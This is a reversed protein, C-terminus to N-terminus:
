AGAALSRRVAEAVEDLPGTRLVFANAGITKAMLEDSRQISGSTTLVLPISQLDSDARVAQCLRFGDMEPMLVDSVIVEPRSEKAVKLAEVGDAAAISAFGCEALRGALSRSEDPDDNVILVLPREMTGAAGSGVAEVHANLLFRGIQE